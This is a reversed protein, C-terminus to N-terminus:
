AIRRMDRFALTALILAIVLAIGLLLSGAVTVLRYAFFTNVGAHLLIAFFVSCHTRNYGWAFIVGLLTVFPIYFWPAIEGTGSPVVFILPLHWLSWILGIVLGAPGSGMRQQLRLQAFGRWGTEEALPGGVILVLFIIPFAVLLSTLEGPLDLGRAIESLGPAEGGIGVHILIACLGLASPGFVAMAFFRLGIRWRRVQVWLERLGARGEYKATVLLASLTPAWAGPATIFTGRSAELDPLLFAILIWISWAIAYSLVFFLILPATSTM